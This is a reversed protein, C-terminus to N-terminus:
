ERGDGAPGACADRRLAGDTGDFKVPVLMRGTDTGLRMYAEEPPADPDYVEVLWPLGARAAAEARQQHRRAAEDIGAPDTGIWTEDRVQGDVILRLRLLANRAEPCPPTWGGEARQWACVGDPVAAAPVALFAPRGCRCTTGSVLVAALAEAAEAPGPHGGATVREGAPGCAAADWRRPSAPDGAALAVRGGGCLEIVDAAAAVRPMAALILEEDADWGDGPQHQQDNM